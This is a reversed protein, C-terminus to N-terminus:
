FITDISEEKNLMPEFPGKASSRHAGSFNKLALNVSSLDKCRSVSLLHHKNVVPENPSQHTYPADCDGINLFGM